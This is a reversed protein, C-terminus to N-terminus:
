VRLTRCVGLWVSLSTIQELDHSWPFIVFLISLRDPNLFVLNLFRVFWRNKKIRKQFLFLSKNKFFFVCFGWESNSKNCWAIDGNESNCLLSDNYRNHCEFKLTFFHVGDKNRLTNNTLESWLPLLAQCSRTCCLFAVVVWVRWNWTLNIYM